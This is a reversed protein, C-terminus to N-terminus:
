WGLLLDNNEKEVIEYKVSKKDLAVKLDNLAEEKTSGKVSVEFCFTSDKEKM